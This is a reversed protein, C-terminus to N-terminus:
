AFSDQIVGYLLGHDSVTIKKLCFMDLIGKLILAGTTIIDARSEPLGTINKRKEFKMSAFRNIKVGIEDATLVYQHIKEPIYETLEMDVAAMTTITGGVGALKEPSRDLFYKGNSKIKRKVECMINKKEEESIVQFPDEIYRETLRVAGINLSLFKDNFILETSGGGIDILLIDRGCLDKKVGKYVLQAEEEGTLIKMEYGTNRKIKEIFDEKNSVDRLASTGVITVDDVEYKNIINKFRTVAREARKVAEPSLYANEDVGEGLRVTILQKKLENICNNNYEAILLRFTNTGMDIGAIKM